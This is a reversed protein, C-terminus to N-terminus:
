SYENKKGYILESNFAFDLNRKEYEGLHKDQGIFKYNVKLKTLDTNFRSVDYPSKKSFNFNINHLNFFLFIFRM